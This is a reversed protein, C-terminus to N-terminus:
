AAAGDGGGRVKKDALLNDREQGKDTNKGKRHAAAWWFRKTRRRKSRMKGESQGGSGGEPLKM